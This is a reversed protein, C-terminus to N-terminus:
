STARSNGDERAPFGRALGAECYRLRLWECGQCVARIGKNSFVSRVKALLPGAPQILGVEEELHALVRTDHDHVRDEHDAGGKVCRGSAHHPCADCIIDGGYVLRIRTSDETLLERVLTMREVFEQGYGLGRFGHICLLHHPRLEVVHASLASRGEEPESVNM